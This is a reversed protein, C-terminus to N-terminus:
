LCPKPRWVQLQSVVMIADEMLPPYPPTDYPHIDFEEFKYAPSVYPPLGPLLM